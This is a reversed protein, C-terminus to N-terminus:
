PWVTRTVVWRVCGRGKPCTNPEIAACAPLQAFSIGGHTWGIMMGNLKASALNRLHEAVLDMVPLYPISAIECTNNFQIETATRLGALRAVEWHRVARPGPGVASISYENVKTKIGGREIPKDWESLSMLWVQKPLREIIDSGDGWGGWGWDYVLVNAKPNGRHVGEEIVANVEAIIEAESRKSCRPCEKWRGHSACNTLNESATITFVGGLGPVQRFM